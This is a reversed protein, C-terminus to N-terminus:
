LLSRESNRVPIEASASEKDYIDPSLDASFVIIGRSKQRLDRLLATRDHDRTYLDNLECNGLERDLHFINKRFEVDSTEM